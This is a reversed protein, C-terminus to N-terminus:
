KSNGFKKKFEEMDARLDRIRTARSRIRAELKSFDDRAVKWKEDDSLDEFRTM